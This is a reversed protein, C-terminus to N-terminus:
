VAAVAEGAKDAMVKTLVVKAVAVVAVLMGFQQAV